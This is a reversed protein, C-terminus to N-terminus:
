IESEAELKLARLGDAELTVQAVACGAKQIDAIASRIAAELSDAERHFDVSVVGMCSGLSGDDCGVEFLADALDETLETGSSLISTFEYVAM